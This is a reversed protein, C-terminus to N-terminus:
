RVGDILTIEVNPFLQNFQQIVGQCSTCYARESVIKLTGSIAPNINNGGSTAGLDRALQNLMKYESDTYREWGGVETAHFIRQNEPVPPGSSIISSNPASIAGGSLNGEVYGFNKDEPINVDIRHQKIRNTAASIEWVDPIRNLTLNYSLIGNNAVNGLGNIFSQHRDSALNAFEAQISPMSGPRLNEFSTVSELNLVITRLNAPLVEWAGVLGPREKFARALNVDGTLDDLLQARNEASSTMKRVSMWWDSERFLCQLDASERIRMAITEALAEDINFLAAVDAASIEGPRLYRYV